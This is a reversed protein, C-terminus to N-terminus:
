LISFNIHIILFIVSSVASKFNEVDHYSLGGRGRSEEYLIAWKHGSPPKSCILFKKDDMRWAGRMTTVTQGQLYEMYPSPLMRMPVKIFDSSITLGFGRIIQNTNHEFYALLEMIKQKRKNTSTAAYRVMKEVQRSKDKRQFSFELKKEENCEKISVNIAQGSPITCLEMPLSIQKVTSGVSLCNLHPYKLVYGRSRFYNDVTQQKGDETKFTKASAPEEIKLVRYQKESAGFCEPPKYLINMGILFDSIDRYRFSSSLDQNKDVRMEDLYNILTSERPFSKHAIDVNLLPSEGLIAAQYLGTWAEYGDDLNFADRPRRFFSRGVRVGREHNSSALVVELVQLARMPKDFVREVQYSFIRM